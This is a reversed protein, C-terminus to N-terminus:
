FDIVQQRFDRPRHRLSKRPIHVRSKPSITAEEPRSYPFPNVIQSACGGLIPVLDGRRWSFLSFAKVNQFCVSGLNTRSGCGEDLPFLSILPVCEWFQYSIWVGGGPSHPFPKVIQSACGALIPVLDVGSRWPCLSILPVCEWFQCSIWM